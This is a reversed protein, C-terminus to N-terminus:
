QKTVITFDDYFEVGPITMGAVKLEKARKELLIMNPMLWIRPIVEENVIRAKWNSKKYQGSEKPNVSEKCEELTVTVPVIAQIQEKKV